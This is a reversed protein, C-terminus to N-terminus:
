KKSSKSQRRRYVEIILFLVLVLLIVIVTVFVNINLLFSGILIFRGMTVQVPTASDVQLNLTEYYDEQGNPYATVQVDGGMVNNFLAIGDGQTTEFQKTGDPGRYVVNVGPIHQGFYDIVEVSVPLNCLICDVATQVNNFVEILTQNLLVDDRYVKLQYVGLAVEMEASGQSDTSAVYFIGSTIEGLTLRANPLAQHNYDIINLTLNQSPFLLIVNYTPVAEIESFTNNLSNFIRGYVSANITYTIKPLTSNLYFAGTIGTQGSASETKYVNNNTKTYSYTIKISVDPILLGTKDQVTIKLNTLECTLDNQSEGTILVSVKAVQVENWYATVNHDGKELNVTAIGNNDSTASYVASNFPDAIEVLIQSVTDGALNLTRFKVPYGPVTFNQSDVISKQTGEPTITIQYTGIPANNPITLSATIIGENSATVAQNTLLKSDATNVINIIASQSAGYGIARVSVSQDRHYQTADTFGILFTDSALDHTKNFYAKYTGAFTTNSGSPQFISSPFTVQSHATGTTRTSSLTVIQSYETLLPDPLTVTVNATYITSASGGTVTVNLTVLNGEQLQNPSTPKTATIFYGTKIHFNSSADLTAQVDRLIVTYDGGPLEPVTFTANVYFGDANGTAMITNGLFLRYLGNSTNITGQINVEQGAVAEAPEVQFINSGHQGQVPTPAMFLFSAGFLILLIAGVARHNM